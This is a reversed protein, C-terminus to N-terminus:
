DILRIKGLYTILDTAVLSAKSKDQIALDGALGHIYVGISAAISIEYHQACLAAIIGTLVDGSGATAMGDNGTTNTMVSHDPYVVITAAGKLVLTCAHKTVFDVAQELRLTADYKFGQLREFEGPHPTLIHNEKILGTHDALITLADADIILPKNYHQLLFLLNHKALDSFGIGPGIAIADYQSLDLVSIDSLLTYMIEPSDELLPAVAQTPIMATVMGCGAHLAAKACLIAAGLKGESGAIVLVHGFTKKHGQSPRPHVQKKIWDPDINVM